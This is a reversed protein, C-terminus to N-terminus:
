MLFFQKHLMEAVIGTWWLEADQLNGSWCVRSRAQIGFLPGHQLSNAPSSNALTDQYLLFDHLMQVFRLLFHDCWRADLTRSTGPWLLDTERCCKMRLLRLDVSLIRPLKIMSQSTHEQCPRNVSEVYVAKSFECCLFVNPAGILRRRM